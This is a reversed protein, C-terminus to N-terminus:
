PVYLLRQVEGETLMMLEVYICQRGGERRGERRGSLEGREEEKEEKGGAHMSRGDEGVGQADPVADHDGMGELSLLEAGSLVHV